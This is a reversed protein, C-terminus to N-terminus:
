SHPPRYEGIRDLTRNRLTTNLEDIKTETREAIELARCALSEIRPLDESRIKKVESTTSHQERLEVAFALKGIRRHRWVVFPKLVVWLIGAVASLIGTLIGWDGLTMKNM